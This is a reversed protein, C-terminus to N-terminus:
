GRFYEMHDPTTPILTNDLLIALLDSHFLNLWFVDCRHNIYKCINGLNIIITKRLLGGGSYLCFIKTEYQIVNKKAQLYGFM